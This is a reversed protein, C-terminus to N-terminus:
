RFWVSRSGSGRSVTERWDHFHVHPKEFSLFDELGKQWSGRNKSPPFGKTTQHFSGSLCSFAFLYRTPYGPVMFGFVTSFFCGDVQSRAQSRRRWAWCVSSWPRHSKLGISVIGASLFLPFSSEQTWMEHLEPKKSGTQDKVAQAQAQKTQTARGLFSSVLM